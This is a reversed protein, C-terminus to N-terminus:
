EDGKLAQEAIEPCTRDTPQPCFTGAIEELAKRFREYKAKVELDEARNDIITNLRENETQLKICDQQVDLLLSGAAEAEARILTNESEFQKYKAQFGKLAKSPMSVIDNM